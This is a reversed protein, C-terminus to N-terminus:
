AGELRARLARNHRLLVIAAGLLIVWTIALLAVGIRDSLVVVLEREPSADM